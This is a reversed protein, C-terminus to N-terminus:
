ALGHLDDMEFIQWARTADLMRALAGHVGILRLCGNAKWAEDHCQLLAELGASDCFRLESADLTLATHGRGILEGLRATLADATATRLEGTIKLVTTPRHHTVSLELQATM